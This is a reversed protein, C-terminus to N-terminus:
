QELSVPWLNNIRLYKEILDRVCGKGGDYPSIYDCIRRIDPHADAPCAKLGALHIPKYDPIDDGMYCLTKLDVASKNSWSQLTTVKDEVALFVDEVGLKNFRQEVAKNAGGTIICIPIGLKRILKVAFGDRVSMKRLWAGNGDLLIQGDTFVGDVDFAFARIEKFKELVNGM